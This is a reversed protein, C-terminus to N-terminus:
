IHSPLQPCRTPLHHPMLPEHGQLELSPVLCCNNWWSHSKSPLGPARQMVSTNRPRPFTWPSLRHSAGSKRSTQPSPGPHWFAVCSISLGEEAKDPCVKGLQLVSLMHFDGTTNVSLGHQRNQIIKAGLQKLVEHLRLFNPRVCFSGRISTPHHPAGALYHLDGHTTTPTQQVKWIVASSCLGAGAGIKV